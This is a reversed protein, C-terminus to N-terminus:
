QMKLIRKNNNVNHRLTVSTESVKEVIMNNVVDGEAVTRGAGSVLLFAQMRGNRFLVGALEIGDLQDSVIAKSVSAKKAPSKKVKRSVPQSAAFIDRGDVSERPMAYDPLAIKLASLEVPTQAAPSNSDNDPWWQWLNLVLLLVLLVAIIKKNM